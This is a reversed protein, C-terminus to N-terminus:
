FSTLLPPTVPSPRPCPSYSSCYSALSLISHSDKCTSFLFQPVLLCTPALPLSNLALFFSPTLLSHLGLASPTLKPSWSHCPAWSLPPEPPGPLAPSSAHHPPSTTRLLTQFALFPKPTVETSRPDAGFRNSVVWLGKKM